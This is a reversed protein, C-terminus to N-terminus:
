IEELTPLHPGLIWQDASSYTADVLDIIEDRDFEFPTWSPLFFSVRRTIKDILATALTTMRSLDRAQAPEHLHGCFRTELVLPRANGVRTHVEVVDVNCDGAIFAVREESDGSNAVFKEYADHRLFTFTYDHPGEDEPFPDSVVVHYERRVQLNHIIM